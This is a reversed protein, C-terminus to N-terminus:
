DFNVKDLIERLRRIQEHLDDMAAADPLQKEAALGELRANTEALEEAGVTAALSKLTHIERRLVDFDKAGYAEVIKQGHDPLSDRVKQLTKMYLKVSGALRKVAPEVNLGPILPLPPSQQM